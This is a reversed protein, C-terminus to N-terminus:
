SPGGGPGRLVAQRSPFYCLKGPPSLTPGEEALWQRALREDTFLRLRRRHGMRAALLVATDLLLPPPDMGLIIAIPGHTTGDVQPPIAETSNRDACLQIHVRSVDFLKCFGVAGEARMAKRFATIFALDCVGVGSVVVLSETRYLTWALSGM